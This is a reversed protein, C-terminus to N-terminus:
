EEDVPETETTTGSFNERDEIYIEPAELDADVRSGALIQISEAAVARGRFYGRVTLRLARIDAEVLSEEALYLDDGCTLTGSVRGKILLSKPTEISGTFRIDSELVTDIEDEDIVSKQVRAM